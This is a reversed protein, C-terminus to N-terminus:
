RDALYVNDDRFKIDATEGKGFIVPNDKSLESDISAIVENIQFSSPVESKIDIVTVILKKAKTKPVDVPPKIKASQRLSTTSNEGVSFRIKDM